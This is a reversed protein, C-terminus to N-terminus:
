EMIKLAALARELRALSEIRSRAPQRQGSLWEHLTAQPIGSIRALERQSMLRGGEGDTSGCLGSAEEIIRDAHQTIDFHM